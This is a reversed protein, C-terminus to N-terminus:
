FTIWITGGCIRCKTKDRFDPLHGRKACEKCLDILQTKASPLATDLWAIHPRLREIDKRIQILQCRNTLGKDDYSDDPIPCTPPYIELVTDSYSKLIGLNDLTREADTWITEKREEPSVAKHLSNSDSQNTIM